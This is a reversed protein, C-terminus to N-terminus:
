VAPHATTPRDSLRTNEAPSLTVQLADVIARSVREQLDFVDDMTGSYKEAWLQADPQADILKAATRLANGARRVSGTLVYRVGLEHGIQRATKTSGKHQMSSTR